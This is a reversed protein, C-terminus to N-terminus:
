GIITGSFSTLRSLFEDVDDLLEESLSTGIFSSGSSLSILGNCLIGLVEDDELM